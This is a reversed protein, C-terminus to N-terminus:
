PLAPAAHWTGAGRTFRTKSAPTDDDGVQWFDAQDPELRITTWSSPMVQADGAAAFAREVDGPGPEDEGGLTEYAWALRRLGLPRTPFATRSVEAGLETARGALVVQRGLAPWHFVGAVRPQGAIDRTKTTPTSSHFRLSTADIATVLVTRAHPVGDADATALTMTSQGSEAVWRALVGLPDGDLVERAVTSM